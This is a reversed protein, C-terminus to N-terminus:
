KKKQKKKTNWTTTCWSDCKNWKKVAKNSLRVTMLAFLLFYYISFSVCDRAMQLDLLYYSVNNQKVWYSRFKKMRLPILQTSTRVKGETWELWKNTWKMKRKHFESFILNVKMHKCFEARHKRKSLQLSFEISFSLFFVPETIEAVSGFSTKLENMELVFFSILVLRIEIRNRCVNSCFCFM